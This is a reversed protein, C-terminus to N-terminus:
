FITNRSIWNQAISQTNMDWSTVLFDGRENEIDNWGVIKEVVIKGLSKYGELNILGCRLDPSYSGHYFVANSKNPTKIAKVAQKQLKLGLDYKKRTQLNALVDYAKKIQEFRERADEERCVDPHWQRAMRYYAKKIDAAPADEKARLIQYFTKPRNKKTEEEKEENSDTKEFWDRLVKESFVFSWNNAAFGFAVSEGNRDKCRGIYEVRYIGSVTEQTNATMEPLAVDEGFHTKILDLIQASCSADVMWAKRPANWSRLHAPIYFKIDAVFAASYPSFVALSGSESEIRCRNMNGFLTGQGPNEILTNIMM